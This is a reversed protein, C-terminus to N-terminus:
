EEEWGGHRRLDEILREGGSIFHHAVLRRVRSAARRRLAKVIPGHETAAGELWGGVDPYERRSIYRNTAALFRHLPSPPVARNILRHFQFNLDHLQGADHRRAADNIQVDLRDLEQLDEATLRRTSREALIGALFAHVLSMDRIDSLTLSAVRFTKHADGVVLGEEQLRLLAERVPTTSLGLSTALAILPLGTGPRLRGGMISDRLHTTVWDGAKAYRAPPEVDMGMARTAKPMRDVEGPAPRATGTNRM